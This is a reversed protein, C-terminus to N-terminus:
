FSSNVSMPSRIVANSRWRLNPANDWAGFLWKFVHRIPLQRDLLPCGCAYLARTSTWCKWHSAVEWPATVACCCLISLAHAELEIAASTPVWRAACRLDSVDNFAVYLEKLNPFASAGELDRLGCRSVWLVQPLRLRLCARHFETM